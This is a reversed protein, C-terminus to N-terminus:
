AQGAGRGRESQAGGKGGDCRSSRDAAARVAASRVSRLLLVASLAPECPLASAATSIGAASFPAGASQLNRQAPMLIAARAGSEAVRSELDSRDDPVTGRQQATLFGFSISAWRRVTQALVLISV